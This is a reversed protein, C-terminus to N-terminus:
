NEWYFIERTCWIAHEARDETRMDSGPSVLRPSGKSTNPLPRERRPTLETPKVSFPTDDRQIHTTVNECAMFPFVRVGLRACVSHKFHNCLGSIPGLCSPGVSFRFQMVCGNSNLTWLCSGNTRKTVRGRPVPPVGNPGHTRITHLSSASTFGWPVTRGVETTQAQARKPSPSTNQVRQGCCM